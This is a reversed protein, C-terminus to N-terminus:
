CVFHKTRKSFNGSQMALNLGVLYIVSKNVKLDHFTTLLQECYIHKDM